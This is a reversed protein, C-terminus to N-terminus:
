RRDYAETAGPQRGRQLVPSAGAPSRPQEGPSRVVPQSSARPPTARPPVAPAEADRSMLGVVAGLLLAGGIAGAAGWRM